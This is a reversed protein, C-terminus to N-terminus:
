GPPRAARDQRQEDRGRPREDRAGRGPRAHRLRHDHRPARASGQARAPAEERLKRDLAGLPEDLLLVAPETILARALAVRQQQGGSLQSPSREEYGELRVLALYEAVRERVVTKGIRRLTLGFAVNDFVTMHPFLAYNQFVMSVNRDKPAVRSVDRGAIRIQGASLREFGAILRLTTTKGSGSPGLLSVFEGSEVSFSCDQVAPGLRLAEM